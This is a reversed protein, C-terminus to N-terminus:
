WSTVDQDEGDGGDSGDAGLTSLDFDGNEGPSQYLCAGVNKCYDASGVDDEVLDTESCGSILLAAWVPITRAGAM